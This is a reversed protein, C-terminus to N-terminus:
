PAHGRQLDERDEGRERDAIARTRSANGLFRQEVYRWSLWAVCALLTTFAPLALWGDIGRAYKNWLLLLPVHYLYASYSIRGAFALPGRGLLAQVAPRHSAAAVFLLVGLALAAVLRAHEPAIAGSGALSWWLLGAAALAGPALVRPLWRPAADDRLAVWARALVMGLTFQAAYEPLQMTLLYRVIEESWHWHAGLALQMDVLPQLGHRAGWQWWLTLGIAAALMARPARVVLPVVLPLLAYFQVEVALSWLAGNANLSSATLPTSNHIFLAHAVANWLDVYLDSKWYGRGHLLPMVLAFLLFLQIYYAPVIRRIRRAYFDRAAPAPRNARANLCWPLALLFGSLLFFLDVGLYGNRVLRDLVPVSALAAIWPDGTPGRFGVYHFAVVWLVAAGRMGDLAAIRGIQERLSGPM